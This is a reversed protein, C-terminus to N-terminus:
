LLGNGGFKTLQERLEEATAADRIAPLFDSRLTMRAIHALLWLQKQRESPPSIVTFFLDVQRRGPGRFDVPTETTLVGLTTESIAPSTAAMLAMGGTLATSQHRERKWIATAVVDSNGNSTHALLQAMRAFLEEKSRVSIGVDIQANAFAPGLEFRGPQEQLLLPLRPHVQDRPTKLRLISCHANEALRHEFSGFLLTRLAREPHAGMVILDFQKSIETISGLKDDSREILSTHKSTLMEGLQKHYASMSELETSEVTTPVTRYLLLEGDEQQALKDAIHTVLSDYPGPEALVLIRRFREHGKNKFVALDCPPHDLWWAMPDRVFRMHESTQPWSMVVWQAKTAQAHQLLGQKANHTIVDHFELAVQLEQCVSEAEKAMNHMIQDDDAYNMLQLQEPVEELRVVELLGVDVFSAGLRVLPKTDTQDRFVPVIVRPAQDTMEEELEAMETERLIRSEGWLHQLASGRQVRKRGYAFYWITGVLVGALIGMVALFGLYFLLVFGGVLGFIQTWPYFPSRFTPRYWSAGSERLIILALHNASFIFIKFGSALKALITLPLFAVLSALLVGTAVIAAVPTGHREHLRRFFEPMLSDRAMAFPYRSTALIGANCMSILALVGIVAMFRYGNINLFESGATTIPTTADPVAGSVPDAAWFPVHAAVVYAVLMYLAMVSLQAAMMGLPLNRNPNRVEEAVSCIKTVGSYAVFVMGSAALLGAIGKPLATEFNTGDSESIGIGCFLLLAAICLFIIVKQIGAVKGVGKINLLVLVGLVGLAFLLPSFTTFLVLYAGLGVLAFATKSSLSFWTGLGTITGMWPGMSRDIYIYTGGSVPMATALEAKTFVAPMVILGALGFAICAWPGAIAAAIGPLLFAGPGLMAGVSISYVSWFGLQRDLQKAV